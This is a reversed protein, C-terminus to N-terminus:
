TDKFSVGVSMHRQSVPKYLYALASAPCLEATLRSCANDLHALQAYHHEWANLNILIPGCAALDVQYAESHHPLRLLFDWVLLRYKAPYEGYALLLDQSLCTVINAYLM